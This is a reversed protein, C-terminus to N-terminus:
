PTFKITQKIVNVLEKLETNEPTETGLFWDFLDIDEHAVLKEFTNKQEDTLVDFHQHYFPDFFVDLEKLGRRCQWALHTYDKETV